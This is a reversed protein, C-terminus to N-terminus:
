PRCTPVENFGPPDQDREQQTRPPPLVASSVREFAMLPQDHFATTGHDQFYSRLQEPSASLEVTSMHRDPVPRLM